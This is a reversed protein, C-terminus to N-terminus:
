FNKLSKLCSFFFFFQHENKTGNMGLEEPFFCAMCNLGAERCPCGQGCLGELSHGM